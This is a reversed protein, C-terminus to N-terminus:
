PNIKCSGTFSRWAQYEDYADGYFDKPANEKIFESPIPNFHNMNFNFVLFGKKLPLILFEEYLFMPLIFMGDRDHRNGQEYRLIIRTTERGDIRVIDLAESKGFLGKLRKVFDEPKKLESDDLGYYTVKIYDKVNRFAFCPDHGLWREHCPEYTWDKPDGCTIAGNLTLQIKKAQEQLEDYKKENGLDYRHVLSMEVLVEAVKVNKKGYKIQTLKLLEEYINLSESYKEEARLKEAKQHLQDWDPELSYVPNGWLIVMFFVAAVFIRNIKMVLMLWM